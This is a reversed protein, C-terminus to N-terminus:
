GKWLVVLLMLGMFALAGIMIIAALAVPIWIPALVWLWSWTITGTLKLIIFLIGLFGTIGIGGSRTTSNSM